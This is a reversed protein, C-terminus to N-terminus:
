HKTPQCNYRIQEQNSTFFWPQLIWIGSPYLYMTEHSQVMDEIEAANREICRYHGRYTTQNFLIGQEELHNPESTQPVNEKSSDSQQAQQVCQFPQQPRCISCWHKQDSHQKQEELSIKISQKRQSGSDEKCGRGKRKRSTQRKRKSRKWANQKNRKKKWCANWKKNNKKLAQRLKAEKRRTLAAESPPMKLQVDAATSIFTEISNCHKHRVEKKINPHKENIYPQWRKLRTSLGHIPTKITSKGNLHM